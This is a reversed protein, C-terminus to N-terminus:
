KNVVRDTKVDEPVRSTKWIEEFQKRYAESVVKNDILISYPEAGFIMIALKNGYVYFPVPLFLEAPMWRYQAYEGALYNSDGDKIMIRYTLKGAQELEAMRGLHTKLRDQNLWKQFDSEDVNSVLVENEGQSLTTYIDEYLEWFGDEGTFVRVFDSRARVGGEIFEVNATEFAKRIIDLTSERPQTNGSEINGISTTSIGTRRSLEAQSWDLLGRAGRIQATTITM